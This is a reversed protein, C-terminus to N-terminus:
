CVLLWAIYGICGGFAIIAVAIALVILAVKGVAGWDEVLPIPEFGQQRMREEERERRLSNLKVNKVCEPVSIIIRVFAALVVAVLTGMILAMLGNGIYGFVGISVVCGMKTFIDHAVFAVFSIVFPLFLTICIKDKKSADRWAERLFEIRERM